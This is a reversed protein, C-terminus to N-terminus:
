WKIKIEGTPYIGQMENEVKFGHLELEAKCTHKFEYDPKVKVSFRGEQSARKITNYIETMVVNYNSNQKAISRAEEASIM